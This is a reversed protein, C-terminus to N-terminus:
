LMIPKIYQHLVAIGEPTALPEPFKRQWASPTVDDLRHGVSLVVLRLM